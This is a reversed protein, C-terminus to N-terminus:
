RGRLDTGGHTELVEPLRSVTAIVVDHVKWDLELLGARAAHLRKPTAAGPDRPVVFGEVHFVQGEDRVRTGATRVWDLGRLYADAEGLLPHPATSEVTTPRADLLGAVASTLNTIGDELISASIVMAAVADAWWWGLGIGAVGVLAVVSTM